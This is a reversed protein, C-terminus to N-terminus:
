VTTVSEFIYQSVLHLYHTSCPIWMALPHHNKNIPKCGMTDELCTVPTIIAKDM